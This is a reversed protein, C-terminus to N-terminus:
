KKPRRFTLAFHLPLIFISTERRRRRGGVKVCLCFCLSLPFSLPWGPLRSVPLSLAALQCGPLRSVRCRCVSSGGGVGRGGCGCPLSCVPPRPATEARDRRVYVAANRRTSSACPKCAPRFDKCVRGYQLPTRHSSDIAAGSCPSSRRRRLALQSGCEGGRRWVLRCEVDGGM